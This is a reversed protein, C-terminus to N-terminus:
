VPQGRLSQRSSTPRAHAPAASFRGSRSAACPGRTWVEAGRLTRATRVATADELPSPNPHAPVDPRGKESGGQETGRDPERRLHAIQQFPPVTSQRVQKCPQAQGASDAQQRQIAADVIKVRSRIVAVLKGLAGEALGNVLVAFSVPKKGCGFKALGFAVQRDACGHGFDQPCDLAAQLPKAGIIDIQRM